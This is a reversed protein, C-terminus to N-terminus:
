RTTGRRGGAGSRGMATPPDSGTMAPTLRTPWRLDPEGRPSRGGPRRPHRDIVDGPDPALPPVTVPEEDAEISKRAAKTVMVCEAPVEDSDSRGLALIPRDRDVPRTNADPGEPLVEGAEDPDRQLEQIGAQGLSGVEIADGQPSDRRGALPLWSRCADPGSRSHRRRSGIARRPHRRRRARRAPRPDRARRQRPAPLRDDARHSGRGSRAKM